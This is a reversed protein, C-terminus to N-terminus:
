PDQFLRTDLKVSAYRFCRDQLQGLLCRFFATLGTDNVASVLRHTDDIRRSWFGSLNGVLPEPKGIGVYPERQVEAILKNIRDVMKRDQKQWYLYDEWAEDSFTLKM